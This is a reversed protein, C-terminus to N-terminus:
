ALESILRIIRDPRIDSGAPLGKGAFDNWISYIGLKQPAVVEWELNDGVMWTESATVGLADMAHQYSRAEPKGFGAEGEIQIHDFRSELDFKVVKHRQTVASGNTVLALKVGLARLKDLTELADPFVRAEVERRQHFERAFQEAFEATLGPARTRLAEFTTAVILVRAELLSFRWTQHRVPDAWFEVFAGEITKGAEAPSIPSFRESHDAAVATLIDQRHGFFLITDDLDFLIAKPLKTM